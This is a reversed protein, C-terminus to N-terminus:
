DSLRIEEELAFIEAFDFLATASVDFERCM